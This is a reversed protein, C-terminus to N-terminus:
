WDGFDFSIVASTFVFSPSFYFKIVIDVGVSQANPDIIKGSM